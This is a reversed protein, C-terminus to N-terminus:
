SEPEMISALVALLHDELGPRTDVSCSAVHPLALAYFEEPRCWRKIAGTGAHVSCRHAESIFGCWRMVQKAKCLMHAATCAMCPGKLLSSVSMLFVVLMGHVPQACKAVDNLHDDFDALQTHRGQLLLEIYEEAAGGQM